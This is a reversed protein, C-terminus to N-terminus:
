SFERVNPRHSYLPTLTLPDDVIGTKLKALGRHAVASGAPYVPNIGVVSTEPNQGKLKAFVGKSVEVLCLEGKGESLFQLLRLEGIVFDETLRYLEKGAVGFLAAAYDDRCAPLVVLYTGAKVVVQYAMAELTSIGVLPIGLAQSLSKAVALGGRIGTYAGPGRTVAIGELNQPVMGAEALLREIYVTLNEVQGGRLSFEALLEEGKTLGISLCNVASSIGLIKM